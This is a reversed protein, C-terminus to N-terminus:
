SVIATAAIQIAITSSLTPNKCGERRPRDQAPQRCVTAVLFARFSPEAHHTTGARAPSGSLKAKAGNASRGCSTPVFEATTLQIAFGVRPSQSWRALCGIMGCALFWVGERSPTQGEKPRHLIKEMPRQKWISSGILTACTLKDNQNGHRCPSGTPVNNVYHSWDLITHTTHDIAFFPEIPSSPTQRRFSGKQTPYRVNLSGFGPVTM